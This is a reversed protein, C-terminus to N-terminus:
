TDPTFRYTHNDQSLPYIYPYPHQRRAIGVPGACTVTLHTAEHAFHWPHAQLAQIKVERSVALWWDELNEWAAGRFVVVQDDNLTPSRSSSSSLWPSRGRTGRTDLRQRAHGDDLHAQGWTVVALFHGSSGLGAGSSFM